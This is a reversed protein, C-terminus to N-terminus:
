EVRIFRNERDFCVGRTKGEYTVKLLTENKKEGEYAEISVAEGHRPASYRGINKIGFVDDILHTIIEFHSVAIIHPTNGQSPHHEFWRILYECARYLRKKKSEHSEIVESGRSHMPHTYHDKAILEGDGGLEDSRKMFANFDLMDSMRLQDISRKTKDGIGAGQAIFDLTGRARAQPSHILYIDDEDNIVGEKRLKKGIEIAREAGGSTLDPGMEKYLSKEHRLLTVKFLLKPEKEKTLQISPKLFEM